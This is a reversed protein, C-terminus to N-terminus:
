YAIWLELNLDEISPSGQSPKGVVIEYSYRLNQIRNNNGVECTIEEKAHPNRDEDAV